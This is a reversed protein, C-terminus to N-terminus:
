SGKKKREGLEQERLSAKISTQGVKFHKALKKITCGETYRLTALKKQDVNITKRKWQVLHSRIVNMPLEVVNACARGNSVISAGSIMLM